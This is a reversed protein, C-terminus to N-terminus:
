KNEATLCKRFGSALQRMMAPYLGLGPDLNAGIPDLVGTRVGLGDTIAHLVRARFQPEGFVCVVDLNRITQRLHALRRAGPPVDARATVAGTAKLGFAREYYQFADHFVVYRHKDLGKLSESIEKNMDALRKIAKKANAEFLLRQSPRIEGLVKAIKKILLMANTPDLWIHGDRYKYEIMPAESTESQHKEGAEHDHDAHGLEVSKQRAGHDPGDHSHGTHQHHSAESHESFNAGIRIPLLDLGPTNILAEIRSTAPLTRAIRAIFAEIEPGVHFIVDANHLARTDSPRLRFAHPSGAGKVLLYPSGTGQMIMAVLSHIPKITAVVKLRTTDQAANLPSWICAFLLSLACVTAVVAVNRLRLSFDAVLIM